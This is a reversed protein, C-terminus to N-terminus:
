WSTLSRSQNRIGGRRPRPFLPVHIGASTSVWEIEPPADTATGSRATLPIATAALSLADALDDHVNPDAAHISLGGSPRAQYRMGALQRLLEPDDPLVLRRDAILARLRGYADEKSAMSTHVGEVRVSPMRRGITETPMAGVGNMEAVVTEVEFGYVSPTSRTITRGTEHITLGNPMHHVPRSEGFWSRRQAVRRPRAMGVVVEVQETYTRNSTECWPVFLVPEPNAGHDDLVGLTAVAHRDFARGWDLGVVVSGGEASGPDLLHYDAVCARLDFPSFFADAAGVFEGEVEAAFRAPPLSARLTEIMAESVWPADRMSWRFTRVHESAGGGDLHLRYFAGDTAWPSSALVIRADPRAATTPFAAGLILDDAILAAEDLVLLDVSWGRVQRESAPVSRVESGNSLVVLSSSEDVLSGALLPSSCVSRVTSLLRRSADEGASVILVRQGPRRFAWWVALLALSYSKGTQRPAVIVTTRADLRLAEAQTPTLPWGVLSAFVSVDDIAARVDDRNM